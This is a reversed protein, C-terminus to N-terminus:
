GSKNATGQLILHWIVGMGLFLGQVFLQTKCYWGLMVLHQFEAESSMEPPASQTQRLLSWTIGIFQLWGLKQTNKRMNKPM